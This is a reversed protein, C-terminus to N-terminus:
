DRVNPEIGSVQTEDLPIQYQIRSFTYPVVEATAFSPFM